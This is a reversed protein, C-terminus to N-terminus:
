TAIMVLCSKSHSTPEDWLDVVNWQIEPGGDKAVMVLASITARIGEHTEAIYRRLGHWPPLWHREGQDALKKLVSIATSQIRSNTSGLLRILPPISTGM